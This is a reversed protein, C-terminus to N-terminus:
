PVHGGSVVIERSEHDNWRQNGATWTVSPARASPEIRLTDAGFPLVFRITADVSQGRELETYAAVVQSDGDPGSAVREGIGSIEADHAWAPLNCVLLGQYKGEAGGVAYIFPGAVYQPLGTPATNTLHVRLEVATGNSVPRTSVAADIDVFQDLKNGGRNHLGILLSDGDVIGGARVAEWGAQQTADSSWLMLHRGEVAEALQAVLTTVDWSGDEIRDVVAQAVESLHERRGSQSVGDTGEYQDLMLYKLINDPTVTQGDVDVPGTAVLLSRLAPIDLAIVGDVTEGTAAQWMQQALAANADFRPSSALNRWETNPELWGWNDALDGTVPVAGAPVPYATTSKIDGLDLQGDRTTLVGASLFAGSGIRMESNNAAFLLYRGPGRLLQEIGTSALTINHASGRLADLEIAFRRHARDLPAVLGHSPGLDVDALDGGADSAIRALQSVLAVRQASAVSTTDVVSRAAAIQRVAIDSVDSAAATLKDVSRVQRGVFPLVRMPILAPNTAHRNASDFQAKAAKLTGVDDGELLTDPSMTSRLRELKDIGVQADKRAHLLQVGAYAVWVGLVVLVLAVWVLRRPRRRRRGKSGDRRDGGAEQVM